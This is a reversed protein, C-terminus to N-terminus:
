KCMWDEKILSNPVANWLRTARVGFTLGGGEGVSAKVSSTLASNLSSNWNNQNNIDSNLVLLDSMYGPSYGNIHKHVEAFIDM